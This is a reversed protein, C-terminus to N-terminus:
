EGRELIYAKLERYIQGSEAPCGEICHAFGSTCLGVGLEGSKGRYGQGIAIKENLRELLGEEKLQELVPILNAYCASCSDLAEM